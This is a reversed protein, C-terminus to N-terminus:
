TALFRRSLIGRAIRHTWTLGDLGSTWLDAGLRAGLSRINTGHWPPLTSHLLAPRSRDRLGALFIPRSWCNAPSTTPRPSGQGVSDSLTAMSRNYDYPAHTRDTTTFNRHRREDETSQSYTQRVLASSNSGTGADCERTTPLYLSRSTSGLSMKRDCIM